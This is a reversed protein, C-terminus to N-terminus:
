LRLSKEYAKMKLEEASFIYRPKGVEGIGLLEESDYFTGPPVLTFQLPIQLQKELVGIREGLSNHDLQDSEVVFQLGWPELPGAAWLGRASIGELIEELDWLDFIRDGM